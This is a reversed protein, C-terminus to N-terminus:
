IGLLVSRYPFTANWNYTVYFIYWIIISLVIVIIKYIRKNSVSSFSGLTHMILLVLFIHFYMSIRYVQTSIQASLYLIEGVASLVFLTTAEGDVLDFKKRNVWYFLLFISTLVCYLYIHYNGGQTLTKYFYGYDDQDYNYMFMVLSRMNLLIAGALLLFFAMWKKSKAIYKHIDFIEDNHKYEITAVIPYILISFLATVHFLSAIGVLLTFKIIKRKKALEYGWFIMAFAISQRMLNLTYPYFIFYYSLIGLWAYKSYRDRQLAVYIPVFVLAQLVFYYYFIDNFVHSCIYVVTAFLYEKGQYIMYEMFGMRASKYFSANGYVLVDRGVSSDRAGALICPLLIACVSFFYFLFKNKKNRSALWTFWTSNGFCILYPIM